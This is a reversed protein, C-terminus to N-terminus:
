VYVYIKSYFNGDSGMVQDPGPNPLEKILDANNRKLSLGKIPEEQHPIVDESTIAFAAEGSMTQAGTAEGFIYRNDSDEISIQSAQLSTNFKPVVIYCWLSSRKAIRCTFTKPQPMGSSDVFAYADPVSPGGYLDVAALPSCEPFSEYRYFSETEETGATISVFGPDVQSMDILCQVNGEWPRCNESRVVTGDASQIRVFVSQTGAKRYRWSIPALTVMDNKDAATVFPAAYNLYLTDGDKRDTLNDFYLIQSTSSFLPLDSVVGAFPSIPCIWFRLAFIKPLKRLPVLTETEDKIAQYLITFGDKTTRFLLGSHLLLRQTEKQPQFTFASQVSAYYEHQFEFRVLELYYSQM